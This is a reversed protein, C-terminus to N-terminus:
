HRFFHNEFLEQRIDFHINIIKNNEKHGAGKQYVIKDNNSKNSEENKILLKKLTLYKKKYKLYKYKTIEELLEFKILM